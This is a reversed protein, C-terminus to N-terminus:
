QSVKWCNPLSDVFQGLTIPTEAELSVDDKVRCLRIVNFDTCHDVMGVIDTWLKKASCAARSATRIDVCERGQRISRARVHRSACSM